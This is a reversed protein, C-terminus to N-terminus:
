RGNYFEAIILREIFYELTTAAREAKCLRKWASWNREAACATAQVVFVRLAVFLSFNFM